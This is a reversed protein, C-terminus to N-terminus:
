VIPAQLQLSRPVVQEAVSNRDLDHEDRNRGRRPGGNLSPYVNIGTVQAVRATGTLYRPGPFGHRFNRGGWCLVAHNKRQHQHECLASVGCRNFPSTSRRLLDNADEWGGVGAEDPEM